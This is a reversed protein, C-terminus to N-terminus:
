PSHSASSWTASLSNGARAMSVGWCPRTTVWCRSKPYVVSSSRTIRAGMAWVPPSGRPEMPESAEMATSDSRERM